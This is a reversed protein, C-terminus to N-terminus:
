RVEPEPWSAAAEAPTPVRLGPREAVFRRFTADQHLHGDLAYLGAEFDRRRRGALAGAVAERELRGADGRAYAAELSGLSASLEAITASAWPHRRPCLRRGRLRWRAATM